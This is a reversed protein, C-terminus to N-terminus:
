VRHLRTRLGLDTGSMGLGAASHISREAKLSRGEDFNRSASKPNRSKFPNPDQFEDSRHPLDAEAEAPRGNRAISLLLGVCTLTILLSSGGYSIFPLPLGKNPLASTVVGINIFAQLGIL